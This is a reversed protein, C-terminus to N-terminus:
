IDTFKCNQNEHSKKKKKFVKKKKILQKQNWSSVGVSESSKFGM